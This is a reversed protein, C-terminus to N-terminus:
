VRSDPRVKGQKILDDLAYSVMIVVDAPEGRALRNPIAESSQGMSPGLASDLTDGSLAAFKLGLLKYTATFSGSSMVHLEVARAAVPLAAASPIFACAALRIFLSKM